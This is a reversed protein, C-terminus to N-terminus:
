SEAVKSLYGNIRSNDTGYQCYYKLTAEFADKNQVRSLVAGDDDMWEVPGAEFVYQTEWSPAFITNDKAHFDTLFAVDKHSLKSKQGDAATTNVFRADTQLLAGYVDRLEPKAFFNDPLDNKKKEIERNLQDMLSLTLPNTTAAGAAVNKAKWWFNSARALGGVTGADSIALAIGDPEAVIAAGIRRKVFEGAVVTISSTTFTTDSDVTTIVVQDGNIDIVDGDNLFRTSDVTISTGTVSTAVTALVNDGAGNFMRNLDNKFDRTLGKMERELAKAFAGVNTRSLKMTQGTLEMRGYVYKLTYSADVYGQNGATPLTGNEAAAGLGSNRSKNIAITVKKGDYEESNRQVKELLVRGNTLAERVTPIYKEKLIGDITTLTAGM